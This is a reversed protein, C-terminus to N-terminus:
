AHLVKQRLRFQKQHRRNQHKKDTAETAHNFRLAGQQQADLSPAQASSGGLLSNDPGCPLAQVVPVAVSPQPLRINGPHLCFGPPSTAHRDQLDLPRHTGLNGTRGSSEEQQSPLGAMALLGAQEFEARTFSVQPLSSYYQIEDVSSQATAASQQSFHSIDASVGPRQM